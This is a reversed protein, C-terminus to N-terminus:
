KAGGKTLGFFLRGNWRTNTIARATASLSKYIEGNWEFGDELVLVRINEGQYERCLVTGPLLEDKPTYPVTRPTQKQKGVSTLGALPFRERADRDDAIKMARIRANESIDGCADRQAAWLLRHIVHQRHRTQTTYGYSTAFRQRLERMPLHNLENELQGINLQQQPKKMTHTGGYTEAFRL